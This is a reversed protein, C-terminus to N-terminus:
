GHKEDFRRDTLNFVLRTEDESVDIVQVEGGVNRFEGTGGTVAVTDSTKDSFDILGQLTIHGEPLWVTVVCQLIFAEQREGGFFGPEHGFFKRKERFFGPEFRFLVCEGTDFGVKKFDRFVDDTFVFRDGVSVGTPATDVISEDVTKTTLEFFRPDSNRVRVDDNRVNFDGHRANGGGHRGDGDHRRDGDAFAVSTLSLFLAVVAGLIFKKQMIEGKLHRTQRCLAEPHTV